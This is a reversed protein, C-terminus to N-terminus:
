KSCSSPMQSMARRGQKWGQDCISICDSTQKQLDSYHKTENALTSRSFIFALAIPLRNIYSERLEVMGHSTTRSLMGIDRSQDLWVAKAELEGVISVLRCILLIGRMEHDEAGSISHGSHLLHMCQRLVCGDKRSREAQSLSLDTLRQRNSGPQPRVASTGSGCIDFRPPAKAGLSM